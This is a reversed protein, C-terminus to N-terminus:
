KRGDDDEYREFYTRWEQSEHDSINPSNAVKRSNSSCSVISTLLLAIIALKSFFKM